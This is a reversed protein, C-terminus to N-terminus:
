ATALAARRREEIGDLAQWLMKAANEAAALAKEASQPNADVRKALQERWVNAHFVDATAHLTFYGYTKQDAGYMEKLGRAKESAVRPVQSEYAYFAALAEEPTGDSAISHFFSTLRKIAPHPSHALMKRAGGMGEVFDLWLESHAPAGSSDGMGKEDALNDLVARRLESEDLRVALEALYEPFAEVHHYYDKAYAQLDERSLEGATWAKYFPHCLLDYKAIRSDLECFFEKTSTM